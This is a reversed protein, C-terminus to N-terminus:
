GPRLAGWLLTSVPPGAEPRGGGRNGSWDNMLVMGFIHEHARSIPIPEGLNNGPGVFFAQSSLLFFATLMPGRSGRVQRSAFTLHKWLGARAPVSVSAELGGRGRGERLM